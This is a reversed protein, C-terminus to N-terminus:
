RQTPCSKMLPCQIVRDARLLVSNPITLGLASVARLNIVLEFKSPQEIPLDGPRAGRVIKAVYDAARRFPEFVDPGYSMLGGDEVFESWSYMAPLRAATLLELIRRRHRYAVTDGSVILGDVPQQRIAAFARELDETDRFEHSRLTLGLKRAPDQLAAWIPVPVPSGPWWLVAVRSLPPVAEKFIALRKGPLEPSIISSLGTVNGAPRALSVAWGMAVLDGGDVTVIPVTSTRRRAAAAAANNVALIIDVRRLILEGACHDLREVRGEASCAEFGVDHVETIGLERIRGEFLRLYPRAMETPQLFLYGIRTRKGPPQAHGALPRGCLTLGLTFAFTRRDM